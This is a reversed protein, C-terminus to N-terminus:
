YYSIKSGILRYILGIEGVPNTVLTFGFILELQPEDVVSLLLPCGTSSVNNPAPESHAGGGRGLCEGFLPGETLGRGLGTIKPVM